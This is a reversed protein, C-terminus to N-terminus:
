GARLPIKKGLKVGSGAAGQLFWRKQKADFRGYEQGTFRRHCFLCADKPYEHNIMRRRFDRMKDSNFDYDEFINGISEDHDMYCCYSMHGKDNFTAYYWQQTCKAETFGKARTDFVVPLQIDFPYNNRSCIEGLMKQVKENDITLPTFDDSGHPNISHFVVISSGAGYCFELMSDVEHLNEESLVFSNSFSLDNERLLSLGHVIKDFEGPTGARYRKFSEYDYGDMSVNIYDFAKLVDIKRDIFVGNTSTHLKIRKSKSKVIEALEHLKPHALAEGGTLFVTDVKDGYKDIVAKFDDVKIMGGGEFAQKGGILVYFCNPCRLNCTSNITVGLVPPVFDICETKKDSRLYRFRNLDRAGGFLAKLGYYAQRAYPKFTRPLRQGIWMKLQTKTPNDGDQM